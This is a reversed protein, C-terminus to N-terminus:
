QSEGDLPISPPISIMFKAGCPQNPQTWIRGDHAQVIARCLSLGIGLGDERTSYFPKFVEEARDPSIGPGSDAVTILLESGLQESIVTVLRSESKAEGIAHAANLILNILVQELQVSDGMGLITPPSPRFVLDISQSKLEATVAKVAMAIVAQYDLRERTRPHKKLLTRMHQVIESARQDDIVIDNLTELLEARDVPDRQTLRRASEANTLIASLPQSLEHAFSTSLKELTAVRSLHVTQSQYVAANEHAKSSEMKERRLMSRNRALTASVAAVVVFALSLMLLQFWRTQWYFHSVHFNVTESPLGWSGLNNSSRVEFQYDGPALGDFQVERRNGIERWQDSAGRLRYSFRTGKPRETKLATFDFQIPTSGPEIDKPFPAEHTQDGVRMSEIRIHPQDSQFSFDTPNVAVIHRPTSFLLLGDQTRLGAPSYGSTCDASPMGDDRNLTFVTPTQSKDQAWRHLESKLLRVIGHATGLWLEDKGNEVISSVVTSPLGDREDFGHITGETDLWALGGGHTGIWTTGAADALISNVMKVPLGQDTTFHKSGDERWRFIGNGATGIWLHGDPQGALCNIPSGFDMSAATVFSSSVFRRLKGDRGGVFLTGDSRIVISTLNADPTRFIRSESGPSDRRVVFQPCAFWIFGRDDRLGARVSPYMSVDPIDDVPQLDSLPGRHLSGGVTAAWITGDSEEALGKLVGVKTGTGVEFFEVRSKAVRFLGQSETGVWLVDNADVCMSRISSGVGAVSDFRGNRWAYLGTSHSGLWITGDASEAIRTVINFPVGDEKELESWTENERRLVIGNGIPAWLVGQRDVLLATAEANSYKEPLSVKESHNGVIRFLGQNHASCWVESEPGIALARITNYGPEDDTSQEPSLQIEELGLPTWHQLGKSTGIWVSDPSDSALSYVDNGLLGEKTTMQAVEGPPWHLLGSGGTGIWVGGANDNELVSLGLAPLGDNLGYDTFKVGDFRNLSSRTGLWLYGDNTATIAPVSEQAM